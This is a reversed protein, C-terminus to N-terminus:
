ILLVYIFAGDNTDTVGNLLARDREEKDFYWITCAYRDSKSALVEHPVRFDSWFMVVRDLVPEVDCIQQDGLEGGYLRLEGSFLLLSPSFTFTFSFSLNFRFIFFFHSDIRRFFSFFFVNM